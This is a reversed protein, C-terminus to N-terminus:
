KPCVRNRGEAAAACNERRQREMTATVQDALSPGNNAAARDARRQDAADRAAFERDIADMRALAGIAEEMGQAASARYWRRAQAVDFPVGLGRRYASGMWFQGEANGQDASARFWRVAEVPDKAVGEGVWLSTGLNVQGEADGRQAAMRFYRAAAVFDKGVGDGQYYHLGMNNAAVANGNDAAAKMWRFYEARNVPTGGYGTEHAVSLAFQAEHSGAEAAKRTWAMSQVPDIAVGQGTKYAKAKAWLEGATSGGGGAPAVATVPARRVVERGSCGGKREIDDAKALENTTLAYGKQKYEYTEAMYACEDPTAQAIAQSAVSLSLLAAGCVAIRSTANM